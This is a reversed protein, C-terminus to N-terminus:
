WHATLSHMGTAHLICRRAERLLDPPVRPAEYRRFGAKLRDLRHSAVTMVLDGKIWSEAYKNGPLLGNPLRLHYPQQELPPKSRIPVVVCLGSWEKRHPSVVLVPRTKVIEPKRFGLGFHCALIQGERPQFALGRVPQDREITDCFERLQEASSDNSRLTAALQQVIREDADDHVVVSITKAM